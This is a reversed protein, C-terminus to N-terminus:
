PIVEFDALPPPGGGAASAASAGEIARDGDLGLECPACLWGMSHSPLLSSCQSCRARGAEGAKGQIAEDVSGDTAENQASDVLRERTNMQARAKSAMRQAAAATGTLASAILALRSALGDMEDTQAHIEDALETMAKALAALQQPTTPTVALPLVGLARNLTAEDM